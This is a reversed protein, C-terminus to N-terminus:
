LDLYSCHICVCTSGCVCLGAGVQVCLCVCVSACVSVCLCVCVYVCACVRMRLCAHARVCVNWLIHAVVGSEHQAVRDVNWFARALIM